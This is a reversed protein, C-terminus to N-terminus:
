NAASYFGERTRTSVKEKPNFSKVVTNIKRWKRADVPQEPFISVSYQHRLEDAIQGLATSVEKAM